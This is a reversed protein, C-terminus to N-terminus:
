LLMKSALIWQVPHGEDEVCQSITMDELDYINVAVEKHELECHKKEAVQWM